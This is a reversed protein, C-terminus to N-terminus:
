PPPPTERIIYCPSSQACYLFNVQVACIYAAELFHQAPPHIAHRTLSFAHGGYAGRKASPRAIRRTGAQRGKRPLSRVFAAHNLQISGLLEVLDVHVSEM